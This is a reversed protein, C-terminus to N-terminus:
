KQPTITIIRNLVIEWLIREVLSRAHLKAKNDRAILTGIKEDAEHARELPPRTGDMDVPFRGNEALGSLRQLVDRMDM